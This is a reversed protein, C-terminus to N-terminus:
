YGFSRANRKRKKAQLKVASAEFILHEPKRRRSAAVIAAHRHKDEKLARFYAEEISNAVGAKKRANLRMLNITERVQTENMRLETVTEAFAFHTRRVHSQARDKIHLRNEHFVLLTRQATTLRSRWVLRAIRPVEQNWELPLEWNWTLDLDFVQRRLFRDLYPHVIRRPERVDIAAMRRKAAISRIRSHSVGHTAPVKRGPAASSGDRHLRLTLARHRGKAPTTKARKRGEAKPFHSPYHNQKSSQCSSCAPVLNLSFFSYHPFAKLDRPLYHDVTFNLPLGCYLCVGLKEINRLEAIYDFPASKSDYLRHLFPAHDQLRSNLRLQRPAQFAHGYRFFYRKLGNRVVTKALTRDAEDIRNNRSYDGLARLDEDITRSHRFASPM